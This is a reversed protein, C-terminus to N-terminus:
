NRSFDAKTMTNLNFISSEELRPLATTKNLRETTDLEKSSRPSCCALSEQGEGDGPTQGLECGNLRHHWSVRQRGTRRRGEIKGPM